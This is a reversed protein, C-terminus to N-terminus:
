CTLDFVARTVGLPLYPKGHHEAFSASASGGAGLSNGVNLDPTSEHTKPSERVFSGGRKSARRTIRRHNSHIHPTSHGIKATEVLPSYDVISDIFHRGYISVSFQQLLLSQIRM